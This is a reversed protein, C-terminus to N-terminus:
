IKWAIVDSFPLFADIAVANPFCTHIHALFLQQALRRKYAAEGRADSIPSIEEQILSLAERVLNESLKKGEMHAATRTLFKPYAFVGGM